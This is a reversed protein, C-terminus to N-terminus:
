RPPPLGPCTELVAGQVTRGDPARADARLRMPGDLLERGGPAACFGASFRASVLEPTAGTLAAASVTFSLVLLNGDAAVGTMTVDASFRQPLRQQIASAVTAADIPPAAAAPQAAALALALFAIM